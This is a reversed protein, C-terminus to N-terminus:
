GSRSRGSESLRPRASASSRRKSRKEERQREQEQREREAEAERQRQEEEQKWKREYWEELKKSQATQKVAQTREWARRSREQKLWEEAEYRAVRLFAGQATPPLDDLKLRPLGAFPMSCHVISPISHAM